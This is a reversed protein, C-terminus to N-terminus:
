LNYHLARAIKSPCNKTYTLGVKQLMQNFVSIGDHEKRYEYEIEYDSHDSFVTHDASIEAFETTYTQRKTTFSTIVNVESIPIHYEQLWHLIEPDHIEDITHAEIDKELEIHTISDTRIKLTFIHRDNITRIRMAGGLSHIYGNKTDYYTNTQQWPKTFDYSHIIKEYQDPQVLIKLEREIPKPM